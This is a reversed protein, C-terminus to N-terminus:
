YDSGMKKKYELFSIPLNKPEGFKEKIKQTWDFYHLSDEVKPIDGPYNRWLIDPVNAYYGLDYEHSRLFKDSEKIVLIEASVSSVIEHGLKGWAFANTTIFISLLIISSFIHTM